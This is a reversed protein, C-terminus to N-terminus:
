IRLEDLLSSIEDPLTVMKIRGSEGRTIQISSKPTGLLLSLFAVVEKNAHGDIPRAAIKLKLVRGATPHNEWGLFESKKANPTVKIALKM